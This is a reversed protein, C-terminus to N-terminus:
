DNKKLQREIEEIVKELTAKKVVIDNVKVYPAQSYDFSSLESELCDNGATVTVNDGFKQAITAKLNQLDPSRMVFCTTCLCVRVEIKKM